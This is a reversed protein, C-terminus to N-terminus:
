MFLLWQGRIIVVVVVVVFVASDERLKKVAQRLSLPVFCELSIVVVVIVIIDVVVVVVVRSGRKKELRHRGNTVTVHNTHQSTVLRKM